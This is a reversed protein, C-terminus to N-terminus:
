RTPNGPPSQWQLTQEAQQVAEERNRQAAILNHTAHANPNQTEAQGGIDTVRVSARQAQLADGGDETKRREKITPM